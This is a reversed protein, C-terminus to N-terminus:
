RKVMGSRQEDIVRRNGSFANFEKLIAKNIHKKNTTWVATAIRSERDRRQTWLVKWRFSRFLKKKVCLGIYWVCERERYAEVFREICWTVVAIAVSSHDFKDNNAKRKIKTTKKKECPCLFWMTWNFYCKKRM